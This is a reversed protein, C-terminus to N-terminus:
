LGYVGPLYCSVMYALTSGLNKAGNEAEALELFSFFFCTFSSM